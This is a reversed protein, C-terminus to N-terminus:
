RWDIKALLLPATLSIKHAWNEGRLSIIRDYLPRGCEGLLSSSSYSIRFVFYKILSLEIM